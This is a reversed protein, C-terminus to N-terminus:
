VEQIELLSEIYEQTVVRGNDKGLLYQNIHTTTTRSFYTSTRFAGEKDYGCVPTSYSFLIKRTPSIVLENMNARIPNLRM